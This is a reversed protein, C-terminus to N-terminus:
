ISVHKSPSAGLRHLENLSIGLDKSYETFHHDISDGEFIDHGALVPTHTTFVTAGAVLEMASNFDMSQSVYERCRELIQFAAHGENIHLVALAM